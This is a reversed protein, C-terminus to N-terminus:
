YPLELMKRLLNIVAEESQISHRQASNQNEELRKEYESGMFKVFQAYLERNKANMEWFEDPRFPVDLNRCSYNFDPQMIRVCWNRIRYLELVEMDQEGYINSGTPIGSSLIMVSSDTPIGSPYIELLKAFDEKREEKPKRKPEDLDRRTITNARFYEEVAKVKEVTRDVCDPTIYYYENALVNCVLEYAEQYQECEYLIRAQTWKLLRSNSNYLVSYTEWASQYRGQMEYAFGLLQMACNVRKGKNGKDRSKAIFGKDGPKDQINWPESDRKSDALIKRLTEEAKSTAAEYEKEHILLLVERLFPLNANLHDEPLQKPKIFDPIVIYFECDDISSSRRPKIHQETKDQDIEQSACERVVGLVSTIVLALLLTKMSRSLLCFRFVFEISSRTNETHM